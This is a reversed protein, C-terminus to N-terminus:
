KKTKNIEEDIREESARILIGGAREEQLMMPSRSDKDGWGRNLATMMEQLTLNAMPMPVQYERGLTTALNVDKFALKLAFHPPDYKGRLIVDPMLRHFLVGSGNGGDRQIKWLVIPDVGAKIGLTMCEAVITQTAYGICNHLVKCISGCGISGTYTIRDGMVKLLPLVKQFVDEDGGVMMLLKGSKAGAPGGSVPIDMVSAGKEKFKDYVRRVLTTSNSTLDIYIAGKKIGEILGKKGLAVEEMEPPGPLSTFIIDSAEAIAKPSDARKAGADVLDKMAEEKLDFVTLPYKAKLINKAIGNGMIGLGIFGIKM